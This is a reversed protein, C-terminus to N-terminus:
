AVKVSIAQYTWGFDHPMGKSIIRPLDASPNVSRM